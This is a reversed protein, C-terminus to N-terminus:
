GRALNHNYKEIIVNIQRIFKTYVEGGEVLALADIRETTARYAADVEVRVEKLVLSSRQASEKYRERMLAELKKNNAELEQVWDTIGVIKVDQAYAGTLEQLLNYIASTAEDFPKRALNGYTDFVIQLRKAAGTKEASFHNLVAKNADVLGRFTIDRVRDATEIDDSIASKVIKKIAEDEQKYLSMYGDFQSTVKLAEPTVGMVLEKFETHFQFHADNRLAHLDIKQTKM